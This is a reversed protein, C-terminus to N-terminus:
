RALGRLGFDVSVSANGAFRQSHPIGAREQIKRFLAWRVLDAAEGFRHACKMREQAKGLAALAQGREAEGSRAALIAWAVNLHRGVAASLDRVRGLGVEM